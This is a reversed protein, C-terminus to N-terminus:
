SPEVVGTDPRGRDVLARAQEALAAYRDCLRTLEDDSLGELDVLSNQAGETARILEALKVQV